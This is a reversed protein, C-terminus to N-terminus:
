WENKMIALTVEFVDIKNVLGINAVGKDYHKIPLDFLQHHVQKTVGLGSPLKM